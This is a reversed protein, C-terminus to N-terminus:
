KGQLRRTQFRIFGTIVFLVFTAAALGTWIFLAVQMSSDFKATCFKGSADAYFIVYGLLTLVTLAALFWSMRRAWRVYSAARGYGVQAGTSPRALVFSYPFAVLGIAAIGLGVFVGQLVPASVGCWIVDAIPRM